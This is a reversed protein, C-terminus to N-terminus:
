GASTSDSTPVGKTGYLGAGLFLLVILAVGFVIAEIERPRRGIDLAFAPAAFDLEGRFRRALVVPTSGLVGQVTAGPEVRNHVRAIQAETNSAFSVVADGQSAHEAALRVPSTMDDLLLVSNEPAPLYLTEDGDLKALRRVLKRRALQPLVGSLGGLASIPALGVVPETLAHTQSWWAVAPDSVDVLLKLPPLQPDRPLMLLQRDLSLKMGSLTVWEAGPDDKLTQVELAVPSRNTLRIMAPGATWWLTLSTLLWLWFTGQAGFFRYLFSYWPLRM